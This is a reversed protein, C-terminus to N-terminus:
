SGSRGENEGLGSLEHGVSRCRGGVGRRGGLVAHDFVLHRDYYGLNAKGAFRFAGCEYQLLPKNSAPKGPM